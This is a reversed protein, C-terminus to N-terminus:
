REQLEEVSSQITKENCVELADNVSYCIGARCGKKKMQKIFNLQEPSAKNKGSKIELFYIKGDKIAFLDSFGKPLGVDFWRGDFLKFKGVNARFVTFGLKSLKIRILNQLSHETM